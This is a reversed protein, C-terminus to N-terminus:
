GKVMKSRVRDLFVRTLLGPIEKENWISLSQCLKCECFAANDKVPLNLINTKSNM